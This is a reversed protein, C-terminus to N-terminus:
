KLGFLKATLPAAKLIAKDAPHMYVPVGFAEKAAALGCVHDVHGHTLFIYRVDLGAEDAYALMGDLQQEGCDIMAAQRTTRCSVIYQNMALATVAERAIVAGETQHLVRMGRRAGGRVCASVLTGGGCLPQPGLAHSLHPMARRLPLAAAAAGRGLLSAM